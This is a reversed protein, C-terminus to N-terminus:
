LRKLWNKEKVYILVSMVTGHESSVCFICTSPYLVGRQGICDSKPKTWIAMVLVGVSFLKHARENDKHGTKISMKQSKTKM